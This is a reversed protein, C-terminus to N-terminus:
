LVLRVLSLMFMILIGAWFIGAIEAPMLSLISGFFDKVINITSKMTTVAEGFSIDNFDGPGPVVIDSGSGGSGTNTNGTDEWVDKPLGTNDDLGDFDTDNFAKYVDVYMTDSGYVVTDRRVTVKITYSLIDNEPKPIKVAFDGMYYFTKTEKDYKYFNYNYNEYELQKTGDSWFFRLNKLMDTDIDIGPFNPDYVKVAIGINIIRENMEESFHIKQYQDKDVQSIHVGDQLETDWEDLWKEQQYEGKGILTRIGSWWLTGVKKAMAVENYYVLDIEFSTPPSEDYKWWSSGNETYQKYIIPTDGGSTREMYLFENYGPVGSKWDTRFADLQSFLFGKAVGKDNRNYFYFYNSNTAKDHFMLYDYGQPDWNRILQETFASVPMNPPMPENDQPEKFPMKMVPTMIPKYVGDGWENVPPPLIQDAPQGDKTVTVNGSYELRKIVYPYVEDNMSSVWSGGNASIIKQISNEKGSGIIGHIFRAYGNSVTFRFGYSLYSGHDFEQFEIKLNGLRSSIWERYLLRKKYYTDYYEVEFFVYNTYEGNINLPRPNSELDDPIEDATLAFSPFIFFATCIIMMTIFVAMFKLAKSKM